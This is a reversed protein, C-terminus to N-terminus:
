SVTSRALSRSLFCSMPGREIFYLIDYYSHTIDYIIHSAWNSPDVIARHTHPWSYFLYRSLDRVGHHTYILFLDDIFLYIIRYIPRRRYCSEGYSMPGIVIM